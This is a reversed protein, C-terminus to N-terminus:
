FKEFRIGLIGYQKQKETTYFEELTNLLQKKTMSKDALIEINFDKFLNEFSDYNLLGIVQVQVQESM